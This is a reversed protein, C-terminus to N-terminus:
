RNGSARPVSDVSDFGEQGALFGGHLLTGGPEIVVTWTRARYCLSLRLRGQDEGVGKEVVGYVLGRRMEAKLAETSLGLGPALLEADITIEGDKIAVASPRPASM